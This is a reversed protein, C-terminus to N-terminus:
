ARRDHAALTSKGCGSPGVFVIFEGSKIDLDIGHLIHLTGYSKKIDRLTCIPWTKRGQRERRSLGLRASGPASICRPPDTGGDRSGSFGHGNLDQCAVQGGLDVTPRARRWTSSVCSRSTASRPPHLRARRGRGRHVRYRRQRFGSAPPPIRPLPPLAGAAFRRRRAARRRRAGSAGAPVPLWPKATSFGGNAAASEWVM